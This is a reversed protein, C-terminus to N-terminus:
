WDWGQFQANIKTKVYWQELYKSKKVDCNWAHMECINVFMRNEDENGNTACIPFYYYPCQRECDVHKLVSIEQETRTATAAGISLIVIVVLFSILFLLLYVFLFCLFIHKLWVNLYHVIFFVTSIRCIMGFVTRQIMIESVAIKKTKSIHRNETSNLVATAVIDFQSPM